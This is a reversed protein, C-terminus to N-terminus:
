GDHVCDLGAQEHRPPLNANTAHVGAHGSHRSPYLGDIEEGVGAHRDGTRDSPLPPNPETTLDYFFHPIYYPLRM